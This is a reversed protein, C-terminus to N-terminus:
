IPELTKLWQLIKLDTVHVYILGVKLAHGLVPPGLEASRASWPCTAAKLGQVKEATAQLTSRLETKASSMIADVWFGFHMSVPVLFISASNVPTFCLSKPCPTGWEHPMCGADVGPLPMAM